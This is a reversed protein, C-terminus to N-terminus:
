TDIHKSANGLDACHIAAKMWILRDEQSELKCEAAANRRTLTLSTNSQPPTVEGVKAKLRWSELLAQLNSQV